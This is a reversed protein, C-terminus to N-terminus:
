ACPRLTFAKGATAAETRDLDVTSDKELRLLAELNLAVAFDPCVM